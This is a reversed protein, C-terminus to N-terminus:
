LMISDYHNNLRKLTDNNRTLKSTGGLSDFIYDYPRDPNVRFYGVHYYTYANSNQCSFM